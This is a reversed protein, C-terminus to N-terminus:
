SKSNGRQEPVLRVNRLIMLEEGGRELLRLELRHQGAKTIPLFFEDTIFKGKGGSSRTTREKTEGAIAVDYRSGAWDDPAAYTIQLRFINPKVLRFDWAIRDEIAVWNGLVNETGETILEVEGSLQATLPTFQVEGNGEQQVVIREPPQKPKQEVEAEGPVNEPLESEAVESPEAEPMTGGTFSGWMQWGIWALALLSVTSAAALILKGRLSIRAGHSVTAGEEPPPEAKEQAKQEVTKPKKVKVVVPQPPAEPPPPPSSSHPQMARRLAEDYAGKAPSLLTTRAVTLEQILPIVWAAYPTGQLQMVRAYQRDAAASIVQPRAEFWALGLLSYYDLPRHTATIGLWERYPDNM